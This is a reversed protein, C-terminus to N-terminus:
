LLFSVSTILDHKISPSVSFTAVRDHCLVTIEVVSVAIALLDLIAGGGEIAQRELRAM